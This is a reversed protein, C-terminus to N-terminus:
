DPQEPSALLLKAVTATGAPREPLQDVALLTMKQVAPNPDQLGALTATANQLELLAYTIAHDRGRDGPKAAAALLKAM